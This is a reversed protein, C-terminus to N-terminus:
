TQMTTPTSIEEQYVISQEIRNGDMPCAKSNWCNCNKIVDTQEPKNLELKNHNSIITRVSPMCSYSLKITNRNFIKHLPNSKPFHVDILSLFRKGINTEVKKSYPPNYRHHKTSPEKARQHWQPIGQICSQCTLVQCFRSCTYNESNAPM